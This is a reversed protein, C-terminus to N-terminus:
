LWGERPTIHFAKALDKLQEESIRNKIELHAIKMYIEAAKEVTEILGFAEDLNQGTGFIGHQSWIVLRCNRIKEATAMGIDNTGAVMWPVIGIGDPFVVICETIMGWLTRTFEREAASHVFTMAITNAPHCHIVVRHLPDEELRAMHNMLHTPFESTPMGGGSFGWLLELEKGNEAVRVIGLNEPPNKTVNKFYKGTGTVLFIRGKLAAADFSLPITRIVDSLDLYEGAEEKDLILSINGGNREDWGLRYMNATMDCIENIFPSELINKMIKEKSKDTLYASKM